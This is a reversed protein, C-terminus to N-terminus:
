LGDLCSNEVGLVRLKEGENNLISINEFKLNKVNGIFFGTKAEKEIHCMMAPYDPTSNEKFSIQINKLVVNETKKEPLGYIFGASIECDTAKINEFFVDKIEPTREDVPLPEKSYVYESLSDPDCRNYFSNIVFPIKVGEMIIDKAYIGYVSADKGRGRRTKLRLGKDTDKFICREVFINKIGGGTESGFVVGGHGFKMLCNRIRMNETPKKLREGLYKKGSKIAICDDGVSFIVGLVEVNKCSEPNLGDTNPSDWHNEIFLNIFKLNESFVPHVTWSPSNKINIGIVNINKCHLLNIMRPRWAGNKIKHEKWWGEKTARGDITGKGIINVNEVNIGTIMSAFSDEPEGEWMGLYYEEQFGLKSDIESKTTIGPLIPFMDRDEIGFITANESLELTINSKLFLSTVKYIGAPFFVRGGEPCSSIAGQIRVTDDREGLGTAGFRRVDLVYSEKLTRVEVEQFDGNQSEIKIKYNRNPELSFMTFVAKDTELNLEGDLYIRNKETSSYIINEDIEFSISTSTTNIIKFKM